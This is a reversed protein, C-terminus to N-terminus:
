DNVKIIAYKDRSIFFSRAALGQLIEKRILLNVPREAIDHSYYFYVDKRNDLIRKGFKKDRRLM